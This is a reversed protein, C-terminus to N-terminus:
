KTKTNLLHIHALYIATKGEHSSHYAIWLEDEQYALAPCGAEGQSPLILVLDMWNLDFRLLAIKQAIGYPTLSQLRGVSWMGHEPHIILRPEALHYHAVRWKWQYFPFQSSGVWTNSDQRSNRRFLGILQGEPTFGLGVESPDGPLILDTIGDYNWGDSTVYLKLTPEAEIDAPNFTQYSIGYAQNHFWVLRCLWEHPQLIPQLSSWHQGDKSFAVFSQSSEYEGHDNYSIGGVLLILRGDPMQSLTPSQLSMEPHSLLAKSSWNTEDDRTILRIQGLRDEQSSHFEVLACIWQGKFYLLDPMMNYAAQDWIRYVNLLVPIELKKPAAM